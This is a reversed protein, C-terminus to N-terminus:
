VTLARYNTLLAGVAFPMEALNSAGIASREDYWQGILLLIAHKISAPVAQQGTTYEISVADPRADTAPWTYGVVRFLANEDLLYSSVSLTHSTGGYYYTVENIAEVPGRPLAIPDSFGSQTLRLTQAGLSRGTYQAVYDTAAAIYGDILADEDGSDVRCHLKAESRSVPFAAPPTIVTIGM